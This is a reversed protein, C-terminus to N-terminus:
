LLDNIANVLYIYSAGLNVVYENEGWLYPWDEKNEPFDPNLILVGPVIGGSIFTFDARNNGYAVRKSSTGVASVFSIDSDPHTGYIYNLGKYVDEKDIIQPFAKYLFYNTIAAQIVQGNGAWGARTIFVGYPNAGAMKRNKEKHNRTLGEMKDSYAKDMFPIAKVLYKAFFSFRKEVVPLLELLRKAYIPEKTCILLEVTAKLEEEELQGGTTNGHHYLDPNHSHEETWVKKATELCQSALTDNFGKLARSAAALAAISGYNLPTSKSTFAWRDDFSGSTLGDSQLTDLKPNYVLNDTKTSADGLHRYQNLHSEVIGHIAHGVAKHQALLQLTGHEIQQLIDPKGDPQHIYVGRQKQNISTEDRKIGFYEWSEVLSTVVDYVTQTRIDFDGADYWGGINLGPIHEGPKYPTDTTPGQAYLDFHEHNVPAQLADDLHSVGHWVRYAEKVYMHDMAIPFYVDLTPQWAKQYVDTAIRFPKTRVSGYELVYLGEEKVMTFDFTVYNYRLYKGWKQVNGNFKEVIAGDINVKLLRATSLPLDNPDLEIVAMKRQNPHYGVQSHGIVPTRKWDPVANAQLSWEIVKGTKATPILSRLVYWGNQAYNRGDLLQLESDASKITIRRTPDEPAFVIAKGKEFPLPEAIGASNTYMESQPYLPFIGAKGDMMYSKGFYAAPLFELNFGAKGELEKPLPKDIVVSLLISGEHLEGRVTFNFKYAPYTLYIEVSKDAKKVKRGIFDPVPDWQGPTPNLRVDGNTVTRIGHHIIEIGSIKSDSFNGNYKNCYMLVQLGSTEFYASDNLSLDTSKISSQGAAVSLNAAIAMLLATIFIGKNRM